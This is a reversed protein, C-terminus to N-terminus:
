RATWSARRTSRRARTRARRRRLRDQGVGLRDGQRGRRIRETAESARCGPWRAPSCSRGARRAAAGDGRPPAGAGAEARRRAVREGAGPQPARRADRPDAGGAGARHGRGGRDGGRVGGDPRRHLRFPVGARARQGRRDRSGSRTCCATSRSASPARSRTRGPEGGVQAPLGRAARAARGHPRLHRAARARAGRRLLAARAERRVGRHGDRRALRLAQAGPRDARPLRQRNPCRTWVEGEPKVTPTGCEPCKKPPRYRKEKGTRRQTVPSVVQPIVDGARM